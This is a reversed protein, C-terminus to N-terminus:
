PALRHLLWSGDDQLTYRLRDHLRSSRGQWFEIVTPSVRYGGWHPPRVITEQAYQAEVTRFNDELVERNNIIESQPSAWAGIRSALPRSNFYEDSEEASVQTVTGEVRVQRQLQDWWFVLSAYPTYALQQGKQSHYNTFFVFGRQDFGKLLVIRACPKGDPTVTALTMANPEILDAELAQDLWVQFQFFPNSDAEAEILGGLTYNIRLDGLSSLNM